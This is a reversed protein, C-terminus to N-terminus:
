SQSSQKLWEEIGKYRSDVSSGKRDEQEQRDLAKFVWKRICLNHNKARYGKMEIYEDLYTIAARTREEGYDECLRQYEDFSLLVHDYEGYKMRPPKKPKDAAPPIIDISDEGISVKDLRDKDLRDKDIRDMARGNDTWPGDMSRGSKTDSREKKEVLKLEPNLSVLLDKYISDVKRDARINNNENWDTIYSVLDDNLVQVYGKAMLVRLDDETCGTSNLVTYAEVVGDDDARMGLHYYLLQSTAPMKLFKASDIIRLSFM